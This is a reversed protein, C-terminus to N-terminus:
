ASADAQAKVGSDCKGMEGLFVPAVRFRVGICSLSASVRAVGAVYARGEAVFVCPRGDTRAADM